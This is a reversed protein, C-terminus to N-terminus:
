GAVDFGADVGGRMLGPVDVVLAVRGDALVASGALGRVGECLRPLPKIVTEVEGILADVALGARRGEHEVVVISPRASVRTGLGLRSGLELFPLADGRLELVGGEPAAVVRDRALDVCEVVHDLPLVCTEGGVGVALGAV